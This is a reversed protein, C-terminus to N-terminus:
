LIQGKIPQFSFPCEPNAVPFSRAAQHGNVEKEDQNVLRKSSGTKRSCHNVFELLASGFVM